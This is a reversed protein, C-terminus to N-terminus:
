PAPTLQHENRRLSRWLRRMLPPMALHGAQATGRGTRGADGPGSGRSSTANLISSRTARCAIRSDRTSNVTSRSRTGCDEFQSIWCISMASTDAATLRNFWAPRAPRMGIHRYYAEFVGDEFLLHPWPFFVERYRHSAQPGRYLNASLRLCRGCGAAEKGGQAHHLSAPRAGVGRVLFHLRVRRTGLARRRDSGRGPVRRRRGAGVRRAAQHRGRGVRCRHEATLARPVEGRGAASRSCRSARSTSSRLWSRHEAPVVRHSRRRSWPAPRRCWRGPAHM